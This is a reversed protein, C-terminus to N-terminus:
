CCSFFCGQASNKGTLMEPKVQSCTAAESAINRVCDKVIEQFRVFSFLHPLHTMRRGLGHPAIKKRTGQDVDPPRATNWDSKWDATAKSFLFPGRSRTKMRLFLTTTVSIIINGGAFRHRTNLVGYSRHNM